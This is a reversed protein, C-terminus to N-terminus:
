SEGDEASYLTILGGNEGAEELIEDFIYTTEEWDGIYDPTGWLFNEKATMSSMIARARFLIDIEEATLYATVTTRTTVTRKKEITM